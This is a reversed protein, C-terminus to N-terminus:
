VVCAIQLYHNRKAFDNQELELKQKTLGLMKTKM